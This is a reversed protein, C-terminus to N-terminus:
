GPLVTSPAANRLIYGWTPEVRTSQPTWEHSFSKGTVFEKNTM